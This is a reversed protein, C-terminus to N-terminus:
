SACLSRRGGGGGYKSEWDPHVLTNVSNYLVKFDGEFGLDMGGSGSFLSLLRKPAGSNM